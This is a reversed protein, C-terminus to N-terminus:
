WLDVRAGGKGDEFVEVWIGNDPKIYELLDSAIMECSMNEFQAPYGYSEGIYEKLYDTQIFIEKERNPFRKGESVLKMDKISDVSAAIITVGLLDFLNQYKRYGELQLTCKPWWAGRIFLVICYKTKIDQPIKIINGKTTELSIDPFNSGISLRSMNEKSQNM